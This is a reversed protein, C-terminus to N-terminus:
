CCDPHDRPSTAGVPLGDLQHLWVEHMKKVVSEISIKKRGRFLRWAADQEYDDKEFFDTSLLVFRGRSLIMIM